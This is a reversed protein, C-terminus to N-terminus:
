KICTTIFTIKQRQQVHYWVTLRCIHRDAELMWKFAASCVAPNSCRGRSPTPTPGGYIVEEWGWTRAPHSWWNIHMTKRKTKATVPIVSVVGVDDSNSKDAGANGRLCFVTLLFNHQAALTCAVKHLMFDFLPDSSASIGTQQGGTSENARQNICHNM